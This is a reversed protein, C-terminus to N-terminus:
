HMWLKVDDIMRSFFGAETVDEIPHLSYTGITKDGLTVRLKGVETARALPAILPDPVDAAASLSSEQGRPMVAYIDRTVGLKVTEATGKWVPVTIVTANADYLKRTQYFNFGYNLLAASADERASIKPSGMVVSVLRMDGRKASSVLCYGASETHGTKLGDVTPDRDLLGNRNPQTIKNWTFERQSYWKYYEPYERILAASLVAIDRATTYHEPSPMGPSNQFHTSALGLRQAYQNMLDVFVPESGAVHEALAVTADNGSQVIMGQILDEVSVTTGVEVFMRSGDQDRAHASIRVQDDLKIRGDKLAHFVAYASMLKTLSAPELRQDENLAALTQGSTFDLLFYGRAAVQPAAPIPPPKLAPATTAAPPAVGGVPAAVSRTTTPTTSDSCATLALACAALLLIRIKM